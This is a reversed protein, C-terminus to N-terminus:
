SVRLEHCANMGLHLAAIQQVSTGQVRHLRRKPVADTAAQQLAAVRPHAAM